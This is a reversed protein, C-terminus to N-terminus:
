SSLVAVLLSRTGGAKTISPVREGDYRQVSARYRKVCAECKKVRPCVKQRPAKSKSAELRSPGLSGRLWGESAGFLRRCLNRWPVVCGVAGGRFGSWFLSFAVGSVKRGPRFDKYGSHRAIPAPSPFRVRVILKSSQPEVMSSCGCPLFWFISETRQALNM